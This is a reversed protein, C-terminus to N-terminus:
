QFRGAVFRNPSDATKPPERSHPSVDVSNNADDDDFGDKKVPTILASLFKTREMVAEIRNQIRMTLAEHDYDLQNKKDSSWAPISQDM